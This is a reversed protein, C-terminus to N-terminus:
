KKSEDSPPTQGNTYLKEAEAMDIPGKYGRARLAVVYDGYWEDFTKKKPEKM